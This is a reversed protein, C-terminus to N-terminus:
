LKRPKVSPFLRADTHPLFQAAVMNEPFRAMEGFQVYQADQAFKRLRPLQAEDLLLKKVGKLSSNGLIKFKERPIDPYMGVTIASELDMHEGFGGALYMAGLDSPTVGCEEMLTAAM